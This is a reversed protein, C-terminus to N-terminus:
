CVEEARKCLEVARMRSPVGKYKRFQQYTSQAFLAAQPLRRVARRLRRYLDLVYQRYERRRFFPQRLRVPRPPLM